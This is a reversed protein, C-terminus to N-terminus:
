LASFADHNHTLDCLSSIRSASQAQANSFGVLVRREGGLFFFQKVVCHLQQSFSACTSQPSHLKRPARRPWQGRLAGRLALPTHLCRTRIRPWSAACLAVCLWLRISVDRGSARGVPRASCWAFGSAYPSMADQHAALQGRLAGRLALHTHLCRTRVSGLRRVTWLGCDVTWLGCDLWAHLNKPSFIGHSNSFRPLHPM